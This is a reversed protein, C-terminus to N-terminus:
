KEKTYSYIKSVDYALDSSRRNRDISLYIGRPRHNTRAGKDTPIVCRKLPEVCFCLCSGILVLM